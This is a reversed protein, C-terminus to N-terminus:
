GIVPEQPQSDFRVRLAVVRGAPKRDVPVESTGSSVRWIGVRDYHTLAVLMSVLAFIKPGLPVLLPRADALLGFVMSELAVFTGFPNDVEYSRINHKPLIAWFDKNAEEVASNYLDEPGKPKLAWISGPDLFECAGVAKDVEYGVGVVAVTPFAPDTELGAFEPSVPGVEEIPVPASPPRTFKAPAYVFDVTYARASGATAFAWVTSAIRARTMSSIDVCAPLDSADVPPIVNAIVWDPFAEDALEEINFGLRRLKGLNSQYELVRSFTFAPALRVQARNALRSCLYRARSEYGVSGLLVSYATSLARPGKSRSRLVSPVRM